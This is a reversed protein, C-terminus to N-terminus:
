KLNLAISPDHVRFIFKRNIKIIEQLFYRHLYESNNFVSKKSLSNQIIKRLFSKKSIGVMWKYDIPFHQVVTSFDNLLLINQEHTKSFGFAPDLIIPNKLNNRKFWEIGDSFYKIISNLFDTNKIRSFHKMHEISRARKGVLNHCFVYPVNPNSKLFDRLEEDLAGSIDNFILNKAFHNNAFKFVDIYYSDISIKLNPHNFEKLFILYEKLRNWEENSSVKKNFPATSQAGLDIVEAGNKLLEHLNNKFLSVSSNKKGDSFSDPTLNMVGM